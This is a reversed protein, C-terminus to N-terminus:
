TLEADKSVGEDVVEDKKAIRHAFLDYQKGESPAWKGALSVEGGVKLLDIDEALKKAFLSVATLNTSSFIYSKNVDNWCAYGKDLMDRFLAYMDNDSVCNSLYDYLMISLEKEGKGGRCDRLHYLLKLATREDQRLALEFLNILKCFSMGRTVKSFFDLCADGSSSFAKSGNETISAVEM